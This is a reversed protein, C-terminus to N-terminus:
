LEMPKSIPFHQWCIRWKKNFVFLATVNM